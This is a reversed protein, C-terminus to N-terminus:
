FIGLVFYICVALSMGCSFIVFLWFARHLSAFFSRSMKGKFECHYKGILFWRLLFYWKRLFEYVRLNKVFECQFLKLFVFYFACFVSAFVLGFVVAKM